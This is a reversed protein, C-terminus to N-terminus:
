QTEFPIPSCRSFLKVWKKAILGQVALESVYAKADPKTHGEAIFELDGITCKCEYQGVQTLVHNFCVVYTWWIQLNFLLWQSLLSLVLYIMPHSSGGWCAHGRALGKEGEGGHACRSVQFIEIRILEDCSSKLCESLFHNQEQLLNTSFASLQVLSFNLAM